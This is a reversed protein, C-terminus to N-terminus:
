NCMYTTKHWHVKCYIKVNNFCTFFLEIHLTKKLNPAVMPPWVWSFNLQWQNQVTHLVMRALSVGENLKIMIIWIMKIRMLNNLSWDYNSSPPVIIWCSLLVWFFKQISKRQCQRQLPLLSGFGHWSFPKWMMFCSSSENESYPDLNEERFICHVSGTNECDITERREMKTFCASTTMNSCTDINDASRFSVTNHGHHIANRQLEAPFLSM